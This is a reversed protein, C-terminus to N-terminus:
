KAISIELRCKSGGSFSSVCVCVRFSSRFAIGANMLMGRPVGGSGRQLRVSCTGCVADSVLLKRSGARANM